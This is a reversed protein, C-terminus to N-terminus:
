CPWKQISIRTYFRLLPSCYLLWQLYFPRLIYLHYMKVRVSPSFRDTLNTLRLFLYGRCLINNFVISIIIIITM